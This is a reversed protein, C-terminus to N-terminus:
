LKIIKNHQIRLAEPGEEAVEMKECGLWSGADVVGFLVELPNLLTLDLHLFLFLLPLFSCVPFGNVLVNIHNHNLKFPFWSFGLLM